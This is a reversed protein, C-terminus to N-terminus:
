ELVLYLADAPLRLTVFQGQRELPLAERPRGMEDLITARSLGSTRLQVTADINEVRFPLQGTNLIRWGEITEGSKADTHTAPELQWGSPRSRPSVQVLVRQSEAIPRGDLAVVAVGLHENGSEIVVDRLTVQGADKLFGVAVQAQPADLTVLGTARDCVVQGGLSRIVPGGDYERVAPAVVNEGEAFEVLVPGMLFAEPPLLSEAGAAAPTDEDRIPDFDAGQPVLPLEPLSVEAFPRREVVAPQSQDAYGLRAILAAAPFPSLQAPDSCNWKSFPKGQPLVPWDRFYSEGSYAVDRPGAFSSATIGTVGGYIASLLAAENPYEHPNPWMTETIWFPRDAVQRTVQPLELPEKTTSRAHLFDGPDVRYGRAEGEHTLTGPYSNLGVVDLSAKVWHELDQMREPVAPRFNSTMLLQRVGIEERMWRALDAYYDRQVEALFRMQDVLRQPNPLQALGEPTVFWWSLFGLRGEQPADGEAAAGGWAALAREVSGYQQKAWDAFQTQARRLPGGKLRGFTYFFLTDENFFTIAVVAPDDKLPVGTYPNPTTLLERMWSRYAQQLKPEFFIVGYLAEKPGYGEIGPDQAFGSHFWAGRLESYIGQEKLMAVRKWPQDLTAPDVRNIDPQGPAPKLMTGALALNVGVRALFRAYKREDQDTWNKNVTTAHVAWFRIPEGDGRLFGRGDPSIRVFGREGAVSENLRRLDIPSPADVDPGGQFVWSNSETPIFPAEQALARPTHLALAPVTAVLLIPLYLKM